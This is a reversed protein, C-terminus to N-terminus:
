NGQDVGAAIMPYLALTPVIAAQFAHYLDPRGTWVSNAPQNNHDLQHLWSGNMPDIHYRAAHDWWSQYLDAYASEGTQLYLVAAANIAEALVWHLRDRVVPAGNWDTTYVFGAAGDPAWGDAVARDFLSKAAHVLEGRDCQIPANALHVLLRAWEFAHGVTAGYPKFQDGPQDANYELDPNWRDDYHEPIRWDNAEATQIVFRCIRDARTLWIPDDTLGAVSIMAEVAHMNANLGRYRDLQEFATDWADVCRGAAEDWFHTTFTASAEAFLAQAGDLQAHVATASALLVFVHDYCFKGPAPQGHDLSSFWGGNIQDHLPGSLGAMVSQAIASCGPTGLLAGIGYVHIMRATIWTPVPQTPDPNGNDDLWAAGGQPLAVHRGFALLDSAHHALWEHHSPRNIWNLTM